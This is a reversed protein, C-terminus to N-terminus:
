DRYSPPIRLALTTPSSRLCTPTHGLPSPTSWPVHGGSVAEINLLIGFIFFLGTSAAEPLCAVQAVGLGRPWAGVQRLDKGVAVVWLIGGLLLSKHILPCIM